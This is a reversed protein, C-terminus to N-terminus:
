ASKKRRIVLSSFVFYICVMGIVLIDKNESGKFMWSVGLMLLAFILAVIIEEKASEVCQFRKM